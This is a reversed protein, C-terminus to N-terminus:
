YINVEKTSLNVIFRITNLEYFDGFGIIFRTEWYKYYEKIDSCKDVHLMQVLILKDDNLSILGIYQRLYRTYYKIPNKTRKFRIERNVDANYKKMFIAEASDIEEKSPTFQEKFDKLTFHPKYEKTFVIGYDKFHKPNYYKFTVQAKALFTFLIFICTLIKFM